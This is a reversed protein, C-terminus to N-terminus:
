MRWDRRRKEQLHSHKEESLDYNRREFDSQSEGPTVMDNSSRGLFNPNQQTNADLVENANLIPVVPRRSTQIEPATTGPVDYSNQTRRQQAALTEYGTGSRARGTAEYRIAPSAGEVTESLSVDATSSDENPLGAIASINTRLVPVLAKSSSSNPYGSATENQAIEEELESPARESKTELIKIRSKIEKIKLKKAM